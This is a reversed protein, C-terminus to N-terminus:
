KYNIKYFLKYTQKQYNNKMITKMQKNKLFICINM